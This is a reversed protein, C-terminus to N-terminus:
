GVARESRNLLFLTAILIAEDVKTLLGILSIPLSGGLGQRSVVYAAILAVAYIILLRYLFRKHLFIGVAGILYVLGLAAFVPGVTTEGPILNVASLTLHSIAALLTLALTLWRLTGGM